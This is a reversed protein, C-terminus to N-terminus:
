HGAPTRPTFRLRRVEQLAGDTLRGEVIEYGLLAFVRDGVFIPRANGYWDLCSVRCHDELPQDPSAELTGQSAFTLDHNRVFLIRASEHRFDTDTRTNMTLIPLGFLGTDSTDERYFFGHSRDESQFAGQEVLTGAVTPRGGLRIATMRLGREASGVIVANAGMAEIRQADHKLRVSFKSEGAWRTIVVTRPDEEVHGWSQGGVLVYPGVFRTTLGPGLRRGISRYYETPAAAGGDSFSSLPLRLLKVEDNADRIVINLHDHGDEFFALQDAPAGRVRIASPPADDFPIRYLLSRSPREGAWATTWAYAATPSAYYVTLHDGLLVTAECTLVPASLSCSILTHVVPDAGLPAVSRFVRTIPAIGEFTGTAAGARWERMAPLWADPAPNDPLTFSSFLVLRDGILRSAYNTGSYYDDSRLHYTARYQLDGTPALDFLGIEVGGRAYSFGIVVITHEWVLLEDYWSGDPEVDGNGPGFADAVDLAELQGGAIALTFLRGRRLIVLVDGQRKVIGGEDVGAHQNNTISEVGGAAAVNITEFTVSESCAAIEEKSRASARCQERWKALEKKRAQRRAKTVSAMAQRLEQDSGFPKLTRKLAVAKDAEPDGQASRTVGSRAGGTAAACATCLLTASAVGILRTM